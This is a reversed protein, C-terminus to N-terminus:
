PAADPEPEERPFLKDSLYEPVHYQLGIDPRALVLDPLDSVVEYRVIEGDTFEVRIEYLAELPEYAQVHSARLEKWTNALGRVTEDSVDLESELSWQGNENVLRYLPYQIKKVERKEPLVRTDIFFTPSTALQPYLNDHVLHVTDRYLVYRKKDLPNVDGFSFTENNLTLTIEPEQLLLRGPDTEEAKLQYASASSLLGLITDIRQPSAPAHYPELMSWTDGSKEFRITERNKRDIVIRAIDAAPVDSLTVVPETDQEPETRTLYVAAGIIFVLLIINVVFRTQM